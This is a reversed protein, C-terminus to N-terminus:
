EPARLLEVEPSTHVVRWGERVLAYELPGRPNVVALDVELLALEEVWGNQVIEIDSNRELEDDTYIDGYGNATFDLHPFKWLLFGAYLSESLVPTGAPLDGLSSELWAPQDPHDLTARPAILALATLAAVLGVAIAGVEARGASRRTQREGLVYATLPVLMAAAVPVTRLSYVAWGAALAILAITSWPTSGSRLCVVAALGLMILLAIGNYDTLDPPSWETFYEARSNVSLVAGLLRPGVPTILAVVISASPVSAFLLLRRGSVDRGLALGVVAAFGIISGVPWMGHCMAWLYTIPILWWPTRGSRITALWAATTVAVLIYSILQPRMSLGTRCAILGLTVLAVATLPDTWRRAVAYLTVALSLFLFGLLWAVGALGFWSELQAMVIQPLWQTPVWDATGYTTVSGPDSLSWNGQRFEAGFRLHFYTDTNTLRLTAAQVLVTFIGFLLLVPLVRRTLTTIASATGPPAADSGRQRTMRVVGPDMTM